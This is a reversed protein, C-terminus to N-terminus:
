EKNDQSTNEEMSKVMEAKQKIHASSKEELLDKISTEFIDFRKFGRGSSFEEIVDELSKFVPNFLKDRGFKFADDWLYKIVKEAFLSNFNDEALKEQDELLSEKTIFYAGLRKDESSMTASNNSIIQHNVTEAFIEWTVGTDLIEIDSHESSGIDNKIMRMIWRRQFATDLTFVNQDATNMTSLISLNSPIRISIEPNGYVIDAINHNKIAYSSNGDVDRDLLQFVEGFIAPANGRNLEEIILYYMQKPNRHAKLLIRTFPGPTFEYTITKDKKISPLIQGIFDTNMYDPHFVIREMLSSDNCYKKDITYSKGSGPVGYLLINKGGTVRDDENIEVHTNTDKSFLSNLKICFNRFVDLTKNGWNISKDFESLDIYYGESFALVAALYAKMVFFYPENTVRIGDKLTEIKFTIKREAKNIEFFTNGNRSGIIAIHTDLDELSQLVGSTGRTNLVELTKKRPISLFEFGLRKIIEINLANSATINSEGLDVIYVPLTVLYSNLNNNNDNIEDTLGPFVQQSIYGSRTGVNPPIIIVYAKKNKDSDILTGLYTTTNSQYPIEDYFKIDTVTYQTEAYFIDKISTLYEEDSFDRELRAELEKSFYLEM